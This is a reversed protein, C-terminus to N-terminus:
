EYRADCSSARRVRIPADAALHNYFGVERHYMRLVTSTFVAAPDLAPMKMIMTDPCSSGELHLRYVASTVGIGVGILEPRVAAIDFDTVSTLWEATVDDAATPMTMTTM